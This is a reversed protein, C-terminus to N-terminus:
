ARRAHRELIEPLDRLQSKEVCERVGLDDAVALVTPHMYASFLVIPQTPDEDLIAQAAELGSMTPMRVDLVIVDPAHQRWQRLAEEGSSAMGTVELTTESLDIYARLLYRMDDDDDVVM